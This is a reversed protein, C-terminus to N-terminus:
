KDGTGDQQRSASMSAAGESLGRREALRCFCGGALRKLFLARKRENALGRWSRTFALLERYAAGRLRRAYMSRSLIAMKSHHLNRALLDVARRLAIRGSKTLVSRLISRRLSARQHSKVLMHWRLWSRRICRSRHEYDLNPRASLSM